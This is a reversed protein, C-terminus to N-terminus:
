HLITKLVRQQWQEGPLRQEKWPLVFSGVESKYRSCMLNTVCVGTFTQFYKIIAILHLCLTLRHPYKDLNDFINYDVLTQNSVSDTKEITRPMKRITPAM